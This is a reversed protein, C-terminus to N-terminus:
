VLYVFNNGNNEREKVLCCKMCTKDKSTIHIYIYIYIIKQSQSYNVYIKWFYNNKSFSTVSEYM